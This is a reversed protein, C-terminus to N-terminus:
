LKSDEVAKEAIYLKRTLDEIEQRQELHNQILVRYMDMKRRLGIDPPLQTIYAAEAVKDVLAMVEQNIGALAERRIDQIAPAPKPM